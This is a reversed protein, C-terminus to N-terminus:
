KAGKLSNLDDKIHQIVKKYFENYYDKEDVDIEFNVVNVKMAELANCVNYSDDESKFFTINGVSAKERMRRNLIWWLDFESFDMGLGVIYLNSMLFYDLWSKYKVEDNYKEYKNQNLENESILYSILRAYEDHTLVISSKRRLEGHIHWIPPSNKFQNYTHLLFRNDNNDCTSKAYTLKDKLMSYNPHFVNEIEYTYNTTIISDFGIKLLDELLSFDEFESTIFTEIYKNQRTSDNLETIISAQLSYPLDKLQNSRRKTLIDCSLERIYKSWSKPNKDDLTKCSRLIGNGLLLVNPFEKTLDFTKYREM